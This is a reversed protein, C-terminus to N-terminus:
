FGFYIVEHSYADRTVPDTGERLQVRKGSFRTVALDFSHWFLQVPSTKGNFRGSFEKFIQDVERLLHHYRRVYSADCTCRYTNTDIPHEDDLAFPETNIYADIGLTGLREVLSQYFDAVPLDDM